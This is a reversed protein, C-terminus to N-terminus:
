LQNHQYLHWNGRFATIQKANFILLSTAINDIFFRDHSSCIIIGPFYLLARELIRMHSIDLLRNLHELILVPQGSILYLALTAKNYDARSLTNLKKRQSNETFGMLFLFQQFYPKSTGEGKEILRLSDALSHDENLSNTFQRYSILPSKSRISVTHIDTNDDHIVDNTDPSDNTLKNILLTIADNNAGSLVLRQGPQLDLASLRPPKDIDSPTLTIHLLDHAIPLTPYLQSIINDVINLPTSKHLDQATSTQPMRRQRKIRYLNQNEQAMLILENTAHRSSTNMRQPKMRTYQTYNGLYEHLKQDEIEIIRNVSNNLFHRDNSVIIVTGSFHDLWKELWMISQIDLHKCPENLVLVDAKTFLFKALAARNQWSVPLQDAPQLSLTENFNLQKLTTEIRESRKWSHLNNMRELADAQQQSLKYLQTADTERQQKQNILSLQKELTIEDVFATEILTKVPLNGELRCDDSFYAFKFDPNIKVSGNTPQRQGLICQLLAVTLDNTPSIIGLRDNKNLRLSSSHIRRVNNIEIDIRKAQIINM